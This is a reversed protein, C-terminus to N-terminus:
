YLVRTLVLSYGSQLPEFSLEMGEGRKVTTDETLYYSNFYRCGPTTFILNGLLNLTSLTDPLYLATYHKNKNNCSKVFCQM